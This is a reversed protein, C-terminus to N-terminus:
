KNKFLVRVTDPVPGMVDRFAPHSVCDDIEVVTSKVDIVEHTISDPTVAIRLFM